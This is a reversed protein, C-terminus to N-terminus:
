PSATRVPKKLSNNRLAPEFLKKFLKYGNKMKDRDFKRFSAFYEKFTNGEKDFHLPIVRSPRVAGLKYRYTYTPQLGITYKKEKDVTITVICGIDTNKHGYKHVSFFNGLSYFIVGKNDKGNYFEVPRLIHPHHGIFIDIGSNIIERAYKISKKEPKAIWERGYHLSVIKVTNGPINEFDKRIKQLLAKHTPYYNMYYKYGKREKIGSLGNDLMTYAAIATETGKINAVFPKIDPSECSGGTYSVSNQKLIEITNNAGRPGQDYFHNNAVSFLNFHKTFHELYERTGNFRPYKMPRKRTDTVFELNGFVIDGKLYQEVENLMNYKGDVKGAINITHTMIDGTFILKATKNEQTNKNEDAYLSISFLCSIILLAINLKTNM